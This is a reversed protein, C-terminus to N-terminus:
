SGAHFGPVLDGPLAIPAMEAVNALLPLLSPSFLTFAATVDPTGSAGESSVCGVSDSRRVVVFVM